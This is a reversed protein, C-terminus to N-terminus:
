APRAKSPALSQLRPKGFIQQMQPVIRSIAYGSYGGGPKYMRQIGEVPLFLLFQSILSLLFIMFVLGLFVGGFFKLMGPVEIKLFKGLIGLVWFVLIWIFVSVLFFAIAEAVKRPLASINLVLFSALSEYSNMVLMSVSIVGVVKGFMESFGQRGGYAMAGLIGFLAVWDFMSLSNLLGYIASKQIADMMQWLWEM